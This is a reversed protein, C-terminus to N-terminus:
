IEDMPGPENKRIPYLFCSIYRELIKMTHPKKWLPYNMLNMYTVSKCIYIGTEKGKM